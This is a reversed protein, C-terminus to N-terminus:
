GNKDGELLVNETSYCGTCYLASVLAGFLDSYLYAFKENYHNLFLALQLPLNPDQSTLWSGYIGTAAHHVEHSVVSPGLHGRTLRIVPVVEHSNKIQILQCVGVAEASSGKKNDPHFKTSAVRMGRLTPYVKVLVTNKEGLAESHLELSLVKVM